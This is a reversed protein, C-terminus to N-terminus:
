GRRNQLFRSAIKSAFCVEFFLLTHFISLILAAAEMVLIGRWVGKFARFM